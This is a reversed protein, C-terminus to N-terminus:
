PFHVYEGAYAIIRKGPTTERNVIKRKPPAVESKSALFWKGLLGMCDEVWGEGFASTWTYFAM